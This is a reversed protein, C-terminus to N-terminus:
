AYYSYYYYYYNPWTVENPTWRLENNWWQLVRRQLVCFRFYYLFFTFSEKYCAM